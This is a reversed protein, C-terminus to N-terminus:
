RRGSSSKGGAAAEAAGVVGGGGGGPGAAGGGQESGAASAAPWPSLDGSAIALLGEQYTPFRLTVGLEEKIRRNSVRKEGGALFTGPPPPHAPDEHHHRGIELARHWEIGGEELAAARAEELTGGSALM